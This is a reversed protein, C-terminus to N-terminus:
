IGLSVDRSISETRIEVESAVNFNFLNNMEQYIKCNERHVVVGESDPDCECDSHYHIDNDSAAPKVPHDRAASDIAEELDDFDDYVSADGMRPMPSYSDEVDNDFLRYKNEPNVQTLQSARVPTVESTTGRNLIEPLIVPNAATPLVRQARMFRRTGSQPSPAIVTQQAQRQVASDRVLAHNMLDHRVNHPSPM